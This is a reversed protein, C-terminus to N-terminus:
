SGPSPVSIRFCCICRRQQGVFQPADVLEFSTPCRETTVFHMISSVRGVSFCFGSVLGLSHKSNGECEQSLGLVHVGSFFLRVCKSYIEYKQAGSIFIGSACLPCNERQPPRKASKSESSSASKLFDAFAFTDNLKTYVSSLIGELHKIRALVRDTKAPTPAKALKDAKKKEVDAKVRKMVEAM